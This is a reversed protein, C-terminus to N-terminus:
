KILGREALLGIYGGRTVVPEENCINAWAPVKAFRAIYEGDNNRFMHCKVDLDYELWEGINVAKGVKNKGIYNDKMQATFFVTTKRINSWNAIPRILSKVRDGIESWASLNEGSISTREREGAARRSRNDKIMWEDIAYKRIDSVGDIVIYKYKGGNIINKIEMQLTSLTQIPDEVYDETFQEVIKFDIGSTQLYDDDKVEMCLYVSNPLSQCLTVHQSTKGVGPDGYTLILPM